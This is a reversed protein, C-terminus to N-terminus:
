REVLGKSRTDSLIGHHVKAYSPSARAVGIVARGRVLEGEMKDSTV